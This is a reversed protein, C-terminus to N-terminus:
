LVGFLPVLGWTCACYSFQSEPKRGCEGLASCRGVKTPGNGHIIVPLTDYVLNRARVHGMEFKLVVEDPPSFACHCFSWPQPSTPQLEAVAM